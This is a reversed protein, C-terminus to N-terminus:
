SLGRLQFYTYSCMGCFIVLLSLLIGRIMRRM